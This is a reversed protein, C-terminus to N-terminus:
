LIYSATSLFTIFYLIAFKFAFESCILMICIFPPHHYLKCFLSPEVLVGQTAVVRGSSITIPAGLPVETCCWGLHRNSCVVQFDYMLPPYLRPCTVTPPPPLPINTTTPPPSLPLPWLTPPLAGVVPPPCEM